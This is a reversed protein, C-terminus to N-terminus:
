LMCSDYYDEVFSDAGMELDRQRKQCIDGRYGSSIRHVGTCPSLTIDRERDNYIQEAIYLFITQKDLLFFLRNFKESKKM